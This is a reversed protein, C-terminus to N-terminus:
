DLSFRYTMGLTASFQDESEVIPSDAADGVLRKYGVGGILAWRNTLDLTGSLNAHVDKFGASTNYTSLSAVSAESQAATVGFYDDMYDGDAYTAGVRVKASFRDTVQYKNSAGIRFYGGTNDGSVIHHYSADLLLGSIRYGLYGGVIFGSDVDGLGRLLLGDDEDRGFAYGGLVGAEFGHQNLVRIRVDDAGNFSFTGTSTGASSFVPYAFPAGVVEYADSGEYTPKVIGIGGVKLDTASASGAVSAILVGACATIINKLSFKM